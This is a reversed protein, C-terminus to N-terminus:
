KSDYIRYYWGADQRTSRNPPQLLVIKRGRDTELLIATYDEVHMGAQRDLDRPTTQVARTQLITYRAIGKQSLIGRRELERLVSDPSASRPLEVPQFMYTKVMQYPLEAM